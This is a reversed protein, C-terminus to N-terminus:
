NLLSIVSLVTILSGILAKASSTSTSTAGATSTDVTFSVGPTTITKTLDAGSAGIGVEGSSQTATGDLIRKPPPPPLGTQSGTPPASGGVTQGGSGDVPKPGEMGGEKPLENVNEDKLNDDNCNKPPAM